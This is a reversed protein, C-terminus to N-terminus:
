TILPSRCNQCFVGGKAVQHDMTALQIKLAVLANLLYSYEINKRDRSLQATIRNRKKQLEKKNMNKKTKLLM